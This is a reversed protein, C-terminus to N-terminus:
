LAMKTEEKSRICPKGSLRPPLPLTTSVGHRILAQVEKSSHQEWWKIHNRLRLHFPVQSGATQRSPMAGQRWNGSSLTMGHSSNGSQLESSCGNCRRPLCQGSKEPMQSVPAYSLGLSTCSNSTLRGVNTSPAMGQNWHEAM